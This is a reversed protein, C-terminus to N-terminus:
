FLSIAMHMKIILSNLIYFFHLFLPFKQFFHSFKMRERQQLYPLVVQRWVFLKFVCFACNREGYIRNNKGTDNTLKGAKLINELGELAVTVVKIDTVQLLGCLPPITGLPSSSLFFLLTISLSLPLSLSPSHSLSPSLKINLHSFHLFWLLKKQIDQNSKNSQLTIETGKM